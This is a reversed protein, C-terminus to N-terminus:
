VGAKKTVKNIITQGIVIIILAIAALAASIVTEGDEEGSHLYVYAMVPRGIELLADPVSVSGDECIRTETEMDGICCFHVEFVRPLGDANEFVLKQGYSWQFVADTRCSDGHWESARIINDTIM